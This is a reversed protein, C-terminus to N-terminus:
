MTTESCCAKVMVDEKSSSLAQVGGGRAAIRPRLWHEACGNKNDAGRM